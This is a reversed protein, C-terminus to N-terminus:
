LTKQTFEFLVANIDFIDYIKNKVFYRIILDTKSSNSLTYGAKGIFDLFDDLDLELAIGLAIATRKKPQYHKNSRIKSFHKRDINAKKYVDYDEKGQATIHNLLAESFTSEIDDLIGSFDEPVMLSQHYEHMRRKREIVRHTQIYSQVSEYRSKSISYSAKDYVVLYVTLDHDFLFTKITTVAISLAQDKPFDFSGTAILPFAISSLNHKLALHLSNLYCLRLIEVENHNGDIWVPGATHFVVKANLDFAETQYVEGPAIYGLTHRADKLNHGGHKFLTAELGGIHHGKPDTPNVIADVQMQALDHRIIHFGM